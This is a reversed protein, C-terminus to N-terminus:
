ERSEFLREFLVLIERLARARHSVSNKESATMEAFTRDSEDPLFVPDYGFGNAGRMADTITGGVEGSVMLTRRDDCYCIVTRFRGRRELEGCTALDALLKQCNDAYTAGEGAYRASRVGPAGGLADVELGTDDAITPIWTAQFIERAKIYANEELTRGDEIPEPIPEGVDELVIIQVGKVPALISQLEDRKHRNHTALLIRM